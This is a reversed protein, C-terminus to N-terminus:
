TENVNYLGNGDVQEDMLGSVHLILSANWKGILHNLANQNEKKQTFDANNERPCTM